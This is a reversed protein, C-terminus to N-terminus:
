PVKPVRGAGSGAAPAPAPEPDMAPQVIAPALASADASAADLLMTELRDLAAEAAALVRADAMWQDRVASPPARQLRAVALAIDGSALAERAAAVADTEVPEAVTGDRVTVLGSLRSMLRAWFGQSQTPPTTAGDGSDLTELRAALTERTQPVASWRALSDIAATDQASFRASLVSQVPGLPRGSELMRRAVTVMFLDRVQRDGAEAVGSTRQLDIAIQELRAAINADISQFAAAQAELAAIRGTIPAMDEAVATGPVVALGVSSQAELREVRSLLIDVRPDRVVAPDSRLAEPMQGRVQREFWPSAVMGLLLALFVAAILWPWLSRESRSPARERRASQSRAALRDLDDQKRTATDATYDVM